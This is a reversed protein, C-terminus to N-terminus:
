RRPSLTEPNPAALALEARGRHPGPPAATARCGPRRGDALRLYRQRPESTRAPDPLRIAACGEFVLDLDAPVVDRRLRGAAQAREVLGAALAGARRADDDMEPTPTFTGALHVTLSHVDARVIRELFGALARWADPDAAAAEAEAIFPATRRPLAHLLDGAPYRRSARDRRGGARRGSGGPGRIVWSVERAAALILADNRRAARAGPCPRQDRKAHIGAGLVSRIM